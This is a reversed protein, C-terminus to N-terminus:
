IHIATVPCNHDDSVYVNTNSDTLKYVKCGYDTEGLLQAQQTHSQADAKAPAPSCCALTLAAGIAACIGFVGAYAITKM